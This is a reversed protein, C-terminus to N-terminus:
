SLNAWRLVNYGLYVRRKPFYLVLLPPKLSKTLPHSCALSALPNKPGWTMKQGGGASFPPPRVKFPSAFLKFGWVYLTYFASLVYFRTYGPPFRSTIAEYFYSFPVNWKSVKTFYFEFTLLFLTSSIIPIDHM